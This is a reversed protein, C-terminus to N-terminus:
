HCGWRPCRLDTSVLGHYTIMKGGAAQFARIDADATGVVSDYQSVSEHLLRAYEDFSTILTTNWDPDKAVWYKLWAEGLGTPVGTCTENTCTTMAYGLDSTTGSSATSAALRAQSEPGYWLFEGRSSRPGSWTLNAVNAAGESITMLAGTETCNVQQGVISFPDFRCAEADSVLGDVVGDLSDCAAIAADTIANIECPYPFTDLISMMVQAWAAGPIFQGWNFAPAAAAIGDYDNPYRQALMMGQRGGQSCGSWYSFSPPQGYFDKVVSKSIVAKALDTSSGSM